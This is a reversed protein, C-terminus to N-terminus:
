IVILTLLELHYRFRTNQLQLQLIMTKKQTFLLLLSNFDIDSIIDGNIVTLFILTSKKILKKICGATGLLNVKM